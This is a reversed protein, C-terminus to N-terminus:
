HTCNFYMCMFMSRAMPQPSPICQTVLQPSFLKSHRWWKVVGRHGNTRAREVADVSYKLELGSEKWWQLVEVRGNMSAVDMAAASYKLLLGSDKWWQLVPVRGLASAADMARSLYKLPLGSDKWWQLVEVHGAASADNVAEFEYILPLDNAKWWRLVDAHGAASAAHIAEGDFKLPLGSNKWWQLVQSGGRRARMPSREKQTPPCHIKPAALACNSRSATWSSSTASIPPVTSHTPISTASHRPKSTVCISSPQSTSAKGAKSSTAASQIRLRLGSDKWWQLTAVADGSKGVSAMFISESYEVELGSEKWWQLVAVRGSYSALDMAGQSYWLKLGSDKWWQLVDLHGNLSAFNMAAMTYKLDLGSDKWWQLVDVWGMKSADDMSKDLYQPERDHAREHDLLLDLMPVNHNRSAADFPFEHLTCYSEAQSERNRLLTALRFRVKADDVYSMIEAFVLPPLAIPPGFSQTPKSSTAATSAMTIQSPKLELGSDVWWRLVALHGRSAAFDMAMASYKLELGSDRWWQLVGVRGSYSAFDMAASSYVLQGKQSAINIASASYLLPVGSDKWWQLVAVCGRQIAVDMARFTYKPRWNRAGVHHLLLDLSAPDHRSAADLQIAHLSCYSDAQSDRRHLLTALCFCDRADDLYSLIKPKAARQRLLMVM